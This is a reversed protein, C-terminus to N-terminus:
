GLIRAIAQRSATQDSPQFTGLRKLSLSQELTVFVPKVASPKLLSAAQWEVIQVDDVSSLSSLQSTISMIVVDPRVTNYQRNSVVVAPRQKFGVQNTFPYRALIVDGFEFTM